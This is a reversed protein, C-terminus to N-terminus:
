YDNSVISFWDSHNIPSNNDDAFIGIRFQGGLNIDNNDEPIKWSWKKMSSPINDDIVLAVDSEGKKALYLSIREINQSDWTIDYVKGIKLLDGQKPYSITIFSATSLQKEQIKSPKSQNMLYYTTGGIVILSLIILTIVISTSGKQYKYTNM